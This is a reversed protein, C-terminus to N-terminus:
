CLFRKGEGADQDSDLQYINIVNLTYMWFANYIHTGQHREGSESTAFPSIACNAKSGTQSFAFRRQQRIEKNAWAKKL